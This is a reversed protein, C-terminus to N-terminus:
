IARPREPCYGSAYTKINRLEKTTRWGPVRGRQARTEQARGLVFGRQARTEQGSIEVDQLRM